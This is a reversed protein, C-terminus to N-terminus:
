DAASGLLTSTAGTRAPGSASSTENACGCDYVDNLTLCDFDPKHLRKNVINHVECLWM